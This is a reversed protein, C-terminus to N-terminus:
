KIAIKKATKKKATKVKPVNVSLIGDKYTATIDNEKVEEPLWFSRSFSSYSYEQRTYNETEEKDEKKTESSITLVGKDVEINFDKKTLGPAAVELSYNKEEDKVNVSPFASSSRWNFLNAGDDEFFNDFISNITPFMGNKKKWKILSM